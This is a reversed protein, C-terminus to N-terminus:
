CEKSHDARERATLAIRGSIGYRAVPATMATLAARFRAAVSTVVRAAIAIVTSTMRVLAVAPVGAAGSTLATPVSVRAATM